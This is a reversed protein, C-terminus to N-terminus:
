ALSDTWPNFVPVRTQVFDSTNRTALTLGAELATAAILLDPQSFTHGRQRGEEVLFRWRVIVDEDLPLIRREFMPRLRNALWDALEMRRAEDPLREIGFRLEAFTVCSMFLADLPQAAVFTLVRQERRPRRLESLINTDLLWRTM